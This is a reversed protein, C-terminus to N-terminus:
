GEDGEASKQEKDANLQDTQQAGILRAVRLDRALHQRPVIPNGGDQVSVGPQLFRRQIVPAGHESVLRRAFHGVDRRTQRSRHERGQQDDEDIDPHPAEAAAHLEVRREDGCRGGHDDAVAAASGGVHRQRHHGRDGHQAPVAPVDPFLLSPQEPEIEKKSQSRKGLSRDRNPECGHDNHDERQQSAIYLQQRARQPRDSDCSIERDCHRPKNGNLAGIGFEEADEEQLLVESPEAAVQVM